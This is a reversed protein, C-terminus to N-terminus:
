KVRRDLLLSYVVISIRKGNKIEYDRLIGEKQFGAKELLSCSAANETEVMAEIRHLDFQDTLLQIFVPLISKMIGKRQYEPVLWFGIEIRQHAAQYLYGAVIGMPIGSKRDVLKWSAGSKEVILREYFDMQEATAELTDYSVGYYRIVEPNSLGLFVFAQDERKIPELLYDGVLKEALLM